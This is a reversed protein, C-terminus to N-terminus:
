EKILDILAFNQNIRSINNVKILNCINLHNKIINEESIIKIRFDEYEKFYKNKKGCTLKYWRYYWFNFKKKVSAYYHTMIEDEKSIIQTENNKYKNTIIDNIYADDNNNDNDNSTEKSDSTQYNIEIKHNFNNDNVFKNENKQLKDFTRKINEKKKSNDPKLYPFIIKEINSITVYENFLCNLFVAVYIIGQAVGGIQSIVDQIKKYSREFCQMRNKLWLNYICYINSDPEYYTFVDNREFTYSMEDKSVDFAIGDHTTILIPDLNIHNASYNDKDIANEVSNIYKKNPEKYNLVDIDHNIFNFHFAHHGDSLNNRQENDLCKNKNDIFIEDLSDQSCGEILISYYTRKPNALGYSINPWRFNEDGIIFYKGIKSDYFKKICAFNKKNQFNQLTSSTMISDIGNKEMLNDCNGYLWHDYNSLNKSELYDIYYSDLGIVRFSLFDFDYETMSDKETSISIFHFFSSSNIPYFGADEIFRNYYYAKPERHYILDLFYYIGCFILIIVQILSIIGSMWSSHSHYGKHYLTIDPSLFDINKLLKM